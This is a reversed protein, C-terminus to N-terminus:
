HLIKESNTFIMGVASNGSSSNNQWQYNLITGVALTIKGSSTFFHEWQQTSSNDKLDKIFYVNEFELKGTKITGKRTIKCGGQWFSVYGGDFPEYDSLYSINGTMHRSCGSDWYGKDDIHNQSSGHQTTTITAITSPTLTPAFVPLPAASTPTQVDMQSTTEFISKIGRGLNINVDRYLEDEENEEDQGEERGVNMGLNEEGNGEDNTNEHTKPIPDFSEEDRTEEKVHTSLSPHIFDEENSAQEDDNGEEQNDEDNVEDEQDDDDQADDDQAGDDDDNGEEDDDGDDGKDDGEEDTSNWSIEEKSEDTPVDLVGPISGIEEDAGSGSAQCIHTQQLSRKTALKLQQPETIAVKSLASLSEALIICRMAKRQIKINCRRSDYGLSKGTLCKKIIAAFSRWPQHLKNINVDTLRRIAGSHGLFWLFALIEEEFPPEVFSQGPLRPFIHLMEGFSELNVIHKKNDMLFAKFFPTLRLVDYLLQITSEKSSIDSLLRFNSRGIRLKHAHPVLAEVMAMQQNITMDM